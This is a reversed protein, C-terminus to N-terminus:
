GFYSARKLLLKLIYLLFLSSPAKLLPYRVPHLFRRRFVFFSLSPFRFLFPLRSFLAGDIGGIFISSQFLFFVPPSFVMPAPSPFPPFFFPLHSLVNAVPGIANLDLTTRSPLTLSLLQPRADLLLPLAPLQLFRIDSKKQPPFLFMSLPLILSHPFLPPFRM